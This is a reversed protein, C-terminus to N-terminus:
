EINRQQQITAISLHISIRWPSVHQWVFLLLPPTDVAPSWLSYYYRCSCSCCCCGFV